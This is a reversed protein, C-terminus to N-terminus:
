IDLLFLHSKYLCLNSIVKKSDLQPEEIDIPKINEFNPDYTLDNERFFEEVEISSLIKMDNIMNCKKRHRTMGHNYKFSKKCKGCAYPRNETHRFRMHKNLNAKVKFSKGCVDCLHEEELHIKLHINLNRKFPFKKNCKNCEFPTKGTHARTHIKLESEYLFSRQCFHCILSKGYNHFIKHKCITSQNKYTKECYECKYQQGSVVNEM